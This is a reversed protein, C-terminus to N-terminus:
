STRGRGIEKLSLVGYGIMRVLARLFYRTSRYRGRFFAIVHVRYVLYMPYANKLKVRTINATIGGSLYHKAGLNENLCYADYQIAIRAWTLSTPARRYAGKPDYACEKFIERRVIEKKDGNIGQDARLKIYNSIREPFPAQSWDGAEGSMHYIFGGIHSPLPENCRQLAARLGALDIEDDDDFPMVFVARSARVAAILSSTKGQNKASTVILRPDNIERLADQTGDTSGDIHVCIEFPGDLSLIKRVLPVLLGIRNYSPICIALLPLADSPTRPADLKDQVGQGITPTGGASLSPEM